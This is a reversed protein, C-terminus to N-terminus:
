KVGFLYINGDFNGSNNIDFKIEDIASIVNIYGAVYCDQIYRKPDADGHASMRCYFHTVYTTNSPSFLHLIGSCSEDSGSSVNCLRQGSTGQAQDGGSAYSVYPTGSDDEYHWAQFRTSTIVENFGSQGVANVQFQFSGTSAPNIDVFYFVYEDYTSDIGSTFEVSSSSSATASSILVMGGPLSSNVSSLTGSGNSTWLTNGGADKVTNTKVTVGAPATVVDGSAGLTLTTGSAPEIKKTEVTSM